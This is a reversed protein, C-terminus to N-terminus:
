KRTMKRQGPDRREVRFRKKEPSLPGGKQLHGGAGKKKLALASPRHWMHCWMRCNNIQTHTHTHLTHTLEVVLSPLFGVKCMKTDQKVTSRACFM